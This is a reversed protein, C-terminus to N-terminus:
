TNMRPVLLNYAGAHEFITKRRSSDEDHTQEVCYNYLSYFCPLIASTRLIYSENRSWRLNRQM